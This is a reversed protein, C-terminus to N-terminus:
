VDDLSVALLWLGRAPATMGALERNKSQLTASVSELTRLGAGVEVVTGVLIRVMHRLFASGHIDFVFDTGTQSVTFSHITKVPNKGDCRQARFASYDLTGTLLRAAKQMPELQLAPHLEWSTAVIPEVSLQERAVESRVRYQYHKESAQTRANMSRPGFRASRVCLDGDDHQQLQHLHRAELHTGHYWCTAFNQQANVGADTRAAFTLARPDAGCVRELLARVDSAITRQEPQVQVGHFAAGRYALELLLTQREAM